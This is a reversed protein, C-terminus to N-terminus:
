LKVSYCELAIETSLLDVHNCFCIHQFSTLHRFFIHRKDDKDTLNTEADKINEKKSRWMHHTRFIIDVYVLNQCLHLYYIRSKLLVYRFLLLREYMDHEIFKGWRQLQFIYVATRGLHFFVDHTM